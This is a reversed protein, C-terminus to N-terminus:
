VTLKNQCLGMTGPVEEGTGVDRWTL